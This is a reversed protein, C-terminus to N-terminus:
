PAPRRTTSISTIGATESRRGSGSAATTSRVPSSFSTDILFDASGNENVAVHTAGTTADVENIRVGTYGRDIERCQLRRSDGFWEVSPGTYLQTLPKAAVNVQKRRTVDFIVLKATPLDFDM